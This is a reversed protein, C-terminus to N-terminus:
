KQEGKEAADAVHIPNSKTFPCFQCTESDASLASQFAHPKISGADALALAARVRIVWPEEEYGIPVGRALAGSNLVISVGKLAERMSQFAADSKPNVSACRVDGTDAHYWTQERISEVIPQRSCHVCVEGIVPAANWSSKPSAPVSGQSEEASTKCDNESQDYERLWKILERRAEPTEVYPLHALSYGRRGALDNLDFYSKSEYASVSGDQPIVSSTSVTGEPKGEGSDATEKQSTATTQMEELGRRAILSDIIPIVDGCLIEICNSCMACPCEQLKQLQRKLLALTEAPVDQWQGTEQKADETVGARVKQIGELAAGFSENGTANVLAGIKRSASESAEHCSTHDCIHNTVEIDSM